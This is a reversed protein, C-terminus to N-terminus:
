GGRCSVEISIERGRVLIVAPNACALKGNPLITSEPDQARSAKLLDGPPDAVTDKLTPRHYDLGLQKVQESARAFPVELGM